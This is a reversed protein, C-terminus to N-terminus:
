EEHQVGCIEGYISHYIKCIDAWQFKDFKELCRRAIEGYHEIAKVIGKAVAAPSHSDVSYGVEGESFQGDFGQGKTYIVPLGQSMAEAYVLGFTETHSPMVFIDNTRYKEIVDNKTLKGAYCVRTDSLLVKKIYANEFGGVVTFEIKYGKKELLDIARLTTLPNKRNSIRGVFIIRACKQELLKQTKNFDRTTYCNEFWFDDIGNPVIHSKDAIYERLAQPIYKSLVQEKYAPSLFFVAKANALIEAGRSRLHPRWKFFANVDTDRVAVVYPISYKKSLEYASNGDTFLTYAHILDFEKVCIKAELARQIKKQKHYFCTRDWKYFCECAVVNERPTIISNGLSYVPAFVTSEVGQTDLHAVMTQHLATSMYNCNIHLVKM